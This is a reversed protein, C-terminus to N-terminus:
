CERYLKESRQRVKQLLTELDGPELDYGDPQPHPRLGLGEVVRRHTYYGTYAYLFLVGFFAPDSLEVERLLSVREERPLAAFGEPDRSRALADVTSLGKSLLVAIEPQGTLAQEIHDAVGLEGAGPFEGDGSPPIIQDLVSTLLGREGDRFLGAGGKEQTMEDEKRKWAEREVEM